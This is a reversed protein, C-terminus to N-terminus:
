FYQRFKRIKKNRGGSSPVSICNILIFVLDVLVEPLLTLNFTTLHEKKFHWNNSTLGILKGLFGKDKNHSDNGHNDDYEDCDGGEDDDGGDNYLCVEM